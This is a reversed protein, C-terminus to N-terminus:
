LAHVFLTYCARKERIDVEPATIVSREWCVRVCVCVCVDGGGVGERMTVHPLHLILCETHACQSDISSVVRILVNCHVPVTHRSAGGDDLGKSHGELILCLPLINM